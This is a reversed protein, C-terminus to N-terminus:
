GRRAAILHGTSWDLKLSAFRLDAEIQDILAPALRAGEPWDDTPALDDVVYFGGIAVLDLALDRSEYKGPMADAFILDFQQGLALAGKLFSIGDEIVVHLRRDLHAKAIASGTEDIDVTWLEAGDDMGDLLWACSIGFGTGLNLLRGKPKTAALLRLLEGTEPACSQDFGHKEAEALLTQVVTPAPEAM